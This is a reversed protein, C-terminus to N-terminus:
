FVAGCGPCADVERGIRSKCNSCYRKSGTKLRRGLPHEDAPGLETGCEDCYNPSEDHKSSCTPCVRVREPEGRSDSTEGDSEGDTTAVVVGYLVAGFLGTFLTLGAWFGSHHGRRSADIAVAFAFLGWVFTVLVLEGVM